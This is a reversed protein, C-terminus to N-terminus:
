KNSIDNQMYMYLEFASNDLANSIYCGLQYYVLYASFPVAIRAKYLFDVAGIKEFMFSSPIM